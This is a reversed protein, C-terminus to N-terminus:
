DVLAEVRDLFRKESETVRVGGFGLFGGEKGAEAVRRAMTRVWQKYAEVEDPDAKAELVDLAARLRELAGTQLRDRKDMASGAGDLVADLEEKLGDDRAEVIAKLLANDRYEMLTDRTSGGMAVAEKVLSIPGGPDAAVMGSGILAPAARILRWEEPSFREDIAM